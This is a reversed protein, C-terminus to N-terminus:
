IHNIEKNYNLHHFFNRFIVFFDIKKMKCFFLEGLQLIEGCIFCQDSNPLQDNITYLQWITYMIHIIWRKSTQIGITYYLLMSM